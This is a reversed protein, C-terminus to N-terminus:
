IDTVDFMLRGFEEEILRVKWTQDGRRLNALNNDGNVYILDYEQDRTNYDQKEFWQDLADNDTEDLNRWLVLVRDGEPNTGEVVHVGRIVDIHKVTLGLLWNFTEVLDVNVLQTEGNCEVKLKYQDPNRFFEVNLLSQSGRSEVDLMYSLIYQERLNDDQELLSTQQDTRKLELNDLAEEYSELRIYKFGHSIGERDQPKGNRWNRSYIVKQIRPKLVSSFYEGQEIMIFSRTGKDERNMELVAQATTGSGAFFDCVVDDNRTSARVFSRILSVPKPYAFPKSGFIRDVIRGGESNMGTQLIAIEYDNEDEEIERDNTNSNEIWSTCPKVKMAEPDFFTKYRPRELNGDAEDPWIIMDNAIVEAMTKPFFRWVRNPNPQFTKGTRPNTIPFFQNPRQEWTMGVTLDTSAYRKGSREDVYPYTDESKVLGYLLAQSADKGYVLVYEHDLSLPTSSMASSSRRKWVMSGLYNHAGLASSLTLWLNRYENDDINVFVVGTPALLKRFAEFRDFMMAIWSSHQFQDKYAFGDDGTNYPPDICACQISESYRAQMLQLSQFNDGEIVISLDTTELSDMKSLMDDIFRSSFHRTDLLLHPNAKLFEVSLPESYGPNSLDKKIEDIAFLRLWEERQAYNEAIEPYLEEPVRDLTICYNTEVVFKKKLWLKKQFNELQELFQIIKHAIKRIVKIKSLYQEVRPVTDYEIDDLHMVENKIYFDFERRLFGGLDKHIFYDFTNRATYQTLHKELVTRKPNAKTPAPRSLERIWDDFGDAQMVRDIAEQNLADQKKKGDDPRYEFRIYLESDKEYIPDEECIIFRREKGPAEKKNDQESSAAVLHVRVRKGSPMTFIYDRFYESSKVYYQDHNAWHLKVEEGEYPIAYVGEKYRRQSIFDGEHYYRRFFNYLHSFVENELATVDVSSDAMQQRLEQVKPSDDPNMGAGKIQEVLKDLERQLEAKDASQYHSFADKVQPLLDKELFRVVEDRKQNMIRYIGFDLDARDLQFLEELLQQFKEFNTPV